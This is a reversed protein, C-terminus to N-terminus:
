LRHRLSRGIAGSATARPSQRGAGVLASMLSRKKVRM